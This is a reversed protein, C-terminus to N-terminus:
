SKESALETWQNKYYNVNTCIQLRVRLQQLTYFWWWHINFGWTQSQHFNSLINGFPTPSIFPGSHYFWSWPHPGPISFRFNSFFGPGIPGLLMKLILSKQEQSQFWVKKQFIKALYITTSTINWKSPKWSM